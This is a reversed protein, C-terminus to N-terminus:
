ADQRVAEGGRRREAEAGRELTLPRCGACARLWWRTSDRTRQLPAAGHVSFLAGKEILRGCADCPLPALAQYALGHWGPGHAPGIIYAARQRV